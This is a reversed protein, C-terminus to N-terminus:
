PVSPPVLVATPPVARCMNCSRVVIQEVLWLASCALCGMSFLVTILSHWPMFALPLYTLASSDDRAPWAVQDAVQADWRWFASLLAVAAVFRLMTPLRFSAGSQRVREMIFAVSALSGVVWICDVLLALTDTTTEANDARIRIMPWGEVYMWHGDSSHCYAAAGGRVIPITSPFAHGVLSVGVFLMM